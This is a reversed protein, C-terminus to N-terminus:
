PPSGDLRALTRLPLSGSMLGLLVPLATLLLLWCARRVRQGAPACRVCIFLSVLFTTSFTVAAAGIGRWSRYYMGKWDRFLAKILQGPQELWMQPRIFQSGYPSFETGCSAMTLRAAVWSIAGGILLTVVAAIMLRKLQVPEARQRMALGAGLVLVLYILGLSQYAGLAVACAIAAPGAGRLWFARGRWCAGNAATRLAAWSACFVGAGVTLVNASFSLQALWVPYTAYAAFAALAFGDRRGPRLLRLVYM